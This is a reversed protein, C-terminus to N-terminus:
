NPMMPFSLNVYFGFYVKNLIYEESVRSLWHGLASVDADMWMVDGMEEEVTPM